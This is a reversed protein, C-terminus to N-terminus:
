RCRAQQRNVSRPLARRIQMFCRQLEGHLPFARLQALHGLQRQALVLSPSAGDSERGRRERTRGLVERHCPLNWRPSGGNRCRRRDPMAAPPASRRGSCSWPDCKRRAPQRAGTPSPSIANFPLTAGMGTALRRNSWAQSLLRGTWGRTSNTRRTFFFTGVSMTAAPLISALTLRAVCVGARAPPGDPLAAALDQSQVHSRGDGLGPEDSSLIGKLTEEAPSESRSGHLGSARVAGLRVEATEVLDPGRTSTPGNLSAKPLGALAVRARGTKASRNYSEHHLSIGFYLSQQFHRAGDSQRGWLGCGVSFSADIKTHASAPGSKRGGTTVPVACSFETRARIRPKLSGTSIAEAVMSSVGLVRRLESPSRKPPLCCRARSESREGAIRSEGHKDRNAEIEM